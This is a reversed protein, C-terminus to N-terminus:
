TAFQEDTSPREAKRPSVGQDCDGPTRESGRLSRRARGALVNVQHWIAPARGAGGLVPAEAALSSDLLLERSGAPMLVSSMGLPKTSPAGPGSSERVHCAEAWLSGLM